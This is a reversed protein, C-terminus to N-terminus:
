SSKVTVVRLGLMIVMLLAFVGAHLAAGEYSPGSGDHLEGLSTTLDYTEPLSLAFFLGSLLVIMPGYQVAKKKFVAFSKPMIPASVEATVTASM